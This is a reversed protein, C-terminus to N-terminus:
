DNADTDAVEVRAPQELREVNLRITTRDSGKIVLDPAGQRRAENELRLKENELRLKELELQKQELEFQRQIEYFAEAGSCLGLSVDAYVGQTPLTASWSAQPNETQRVEALQDVVQGVFTEVAPDLDAKAVGHFPGPSLISESPMTRLDAARERGSVRAPAALVRARRPRPAEVIADTHRRLVAAVSGRRDVGAGEARLALEKVGFPVFGYLFTLLEAERGAFVQYGWRLQGDQDPAVWGPLPGVYQQMASVFSSRVDADILADDASIDVAVLAARYLADSWLERLIKIPSVGYTDIFRNVWVASQAFRILRGLTLTEPPQSTPAIAGPDLVAEDAGGPFSPPGEPPRTPLPPEDEGDGRRVYLVRPADDVGPLAVPRLLEAESGLVVLLADDLYLRVDYEQLVEYYNANLTYAQNINRIRRTTKSEAGEERSVAIRVKHNSKYEHTAQEAREKASRAVGQQMNKVEQAWGAEISAGFGFASFGAKGSISESETSESGRSIESASSGTQKVDSVNRVETDDETDQQTKSTEWTKLELTLEENPLLSTTFLLDGIGTGGPAWEQRYKLMLYLDWQLPIPEEDERVEVAMPLGAGRLQVLTRTYVNEKADVDPKLTLRGIDPQSVCVREARYIRIPENADPV